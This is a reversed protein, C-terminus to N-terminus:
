TLGSRMRLLGHGVDTDMDTDADLDQKEMLGGSCTAYLSYVLGKRKTFPSARWVLM